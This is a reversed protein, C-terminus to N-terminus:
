NVKKVIALATDVAVLDNDQVFKTIVKLGVICPINLERSVIAAHCTLGGEDTLIAAAKKMAPVLSPNTASSVLIDGAEMKNMESPLNIIKVQGTILKGICATVGKLEMVSSLNSTEDSRKINQKSFEQADKGTLTIVSGDENALCIHFQKIQDAISLDLTEGHLAKEMVELPLSRVQDLSLFLRRAIERLLQEAHYDSKSQYDKRRPKVWVVRGAIKLIFEDLGTLQLEALYKTKLEALRIKEVQLAELKEQPVVDKGLYDVIFGYFDRAIFAPGAYVYYIWGHTKAHLQLDIYFDPYKIKIENLGNTKVDAQWGALEWYKAMLRLLDEEQDQAFSNHEPATFVTYYDAFKDPNVKAQLIRNLNSEVFSFDAFDMAPLILGYAFEQEQMDIFQKLLGMLENGSKVTLDSNFINTETWQNLHEGWSISKDILDTFVSFDALVRAKMEEHIKSWYGSAALYEIQNNKSAIGFPAWSINTLKSFKYFSQSWFYNRLYPSNYDHAIVEWNYNKYSM